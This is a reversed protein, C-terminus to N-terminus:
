TFAVVPDKVFLVYFIHHPVPSGLNGIFRLLLAREKEGRGYPPKKMTFLFDPEKTHNKNPNKERNSKDPHKKRAVMVGGVMARM